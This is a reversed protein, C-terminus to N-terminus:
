EDQREEPQWEGRRRENKACRWQLFVTMGAAAVVLILDIVAIYYSASGVTTFALSFVTLVFLVSLTAFLFRLRPVHDCVVTWFEEKM